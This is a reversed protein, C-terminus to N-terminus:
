PTVTVSIDTGATADRVNKMQLRYMFVKDLPLDRNLQRIKNSAKFDFVTTTTGNALTLQARQATGSLFPTLDDPTAKLRLTANLMCNRGRFSNVQVFQSEFPRADMVNTVDISFDDYQTRVTGATSGLLMGGISHKLMYPGLPLDTDAPAPFEIADPDASADIPNGVEKVAQLDMTLKWVPDTASAAIQWRTVKTGAYRTRRLTGDSRQYAHYISASALDGAPETTVWPSTQATNIRNQAWDFLLKAQAPYLKTTLTGKCDMFETLSEVTIAEGGGYPIDVYQPVAQMSFSNGDTLRLYIKDTGAVPTSMTTGLASEKVLMLFEFVAM